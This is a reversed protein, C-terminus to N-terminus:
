RRKKILLMAIGATLLGLAFINKPNIFDGTDPSADLESDGNGTMPISNYSYMGYKGTHNIEFSVCLTGGRDVIKYSLDELQQNDDICIVHLNTTPVSDPIEIVTNLTQQGFKTIPIGTKKDTLEIDMSKMNNPIDEGYIRKYANKVSDSVTQEYKINLVFAEDTGEFHVTEGEIEEASEFGGDKAAKCINELQSAEFNYGKGFILMTPPVSFNEAEEKTLNCGVIFLKGNYYDTNEESITCILGSFGTINRDLVTGTTIVNENPVIAVKVGEFADKRYAENALRTATTNYTLKPISEGLFVVAKEEESATTNSLDFAGIGIMSVSDVIRITEIPCGSFARDAIINLNIGGNVNKLNSCGSFADEGIKLLSDPLTVDTIGQHDKFAEPAINKVGEPIVIKSDKGRYALLIGDGVILFNGSGSNIWNELYKTKAFAAPEIDTVSNPISVSTLRDCHYFAGYGIYTVGEPIIIEDLGSRAFAFEGISNVNEPIIYSTLSTDGYFAKAAIQNGIVAFKPVSLGKGNTDTNQENGVDTSVIQSYQDTSSLSAVTQNTNNIFIVAKRGVVVTEGILGQASVFSDIISEVNQPKNSPESKEESNNSVDAPNVTTNLVANNDESDIISVQSRDMNQFWKYAYSFTPAVINLRPCGDFATDDIYSVSENIEVESLNVCNEFAKADINNVSYPIVVSQLGNCNSFSYATIEELYPSLTVSKLKSCGYFSYPAIQNVTKPMSYAEDDKGQLKQYIKTKDKNLVTGNDCVFRSGAFKVEALKECGTFVGNGLKRLGSGISIDTLSSCNCFVATGITEVSNPIVIKELNSCGSFAAYNIEKVSNPIIVSYVSANDAFAENGIVKVYDPISVTIATGTYKVLTDRDMQFDTTSLEASDADASGAPVLFVVLASIILLAGIIQWYLKKM